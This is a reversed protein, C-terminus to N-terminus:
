NAGTLVKGNNDVKIRRQKGTKKITKRTEEILRQQRPLLREFLSRVRDKEKDLSTPAVISQISKAAKKNQKGSATIYSTGRARVDRGVVGGATQVVLEQRQTETMKKLNPDSDSYENIIRLANNMHNIMDDQEPTAEQGTQAEEYGVAELSGPDPDSVGAVPEFIFQGSSSDYAFQSNNRLAKTISDAAFRSITRKLVGAAKPDSTELWKLNKQYNANTYSSLIKDRNTASIAHNLGINLGVASQRVFTQVDEKLSNKELKLNSAIGIATNIANTRLKQSTALDSARDPDSQLALFQSISMAEEVEGPTKGKGRLAVGLQQLVDQKLSIDGANMSNVLGSLAQSGVITRLRVVLPAAQAMDIAETAKLRNLLEISAKSGQIGQTPDYIAKINDLTIKLQDNAAKTAELGAGRISQALSSKLQISIATLQRGVNDSLEQYDAPTRAAEYLSISADILPAMSDTLLNAIKVTERAEVEKNVEGTKQALTLKDSAATIAAQNELVTIGKMAIALPDDGPKALPAGAEEAKSFYDQDEKEGSGGAVLDFGKAGAEGHDRIVTIRAERLKFVKANVDILGQHFQELIGTATTQGASIADKEVQKADAIKQKEYATFATDLVDGVQRIVQAASSQTQAVRTTGASRGVGPVKPESLNEQFTAM